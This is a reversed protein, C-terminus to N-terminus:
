LWGIGGAIKRVTIAATQKESAGSSVTFTTSGERLGKFTIVGGNVTAEAVTPDAVSVTFTTTEGNKFSRRVDKTCLQGPAVYVNTLKMPVGNANDEINRLLTAANIVGSGMKGKYRGELDVIEPCTNGLTANLYNYQKKGTLHSDIDSVSKKLLERYQEASFHKHLKAAYSLGLAAVGSVHPCAM